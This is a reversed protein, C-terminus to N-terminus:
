CQNCCSKLTWFHLFTVNYILNQKNTNISLMGTLLKETMHPSLWHKSPIVLVKRPTFTHKSFSVVRRLYTDIRRGRVRSDSVIGSPWWAGGRIYSSAMFHVTIFIMFVFFHDCLLHPKNNQKNKNKNLTGTFLKETM